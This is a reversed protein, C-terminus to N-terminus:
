NTTAIPRTAAQPDDPPVGPVDGPPDVSGFAPYAKRATNLWASGGMARKVHNGFAKMLASPITTVCPATRAIKVPGNTVGSKPACNLSAPLSWTTSCARESPSSSPDPSKLGGFGIGPLTDPVILRTASPAIRSIVPSGLAFMWHMVVGHSAAGPVGSANPDNQIYRPLRRAITPSSSPGSASYWGFPYASSMPTGGGPSEPRSGCTTSQTSSVGSASIPSGIPSSGNGVQAVTSSSSAAVSSAANAPAFWSVIHTSSLTVSGTDIVTRRSSGPSSGHM